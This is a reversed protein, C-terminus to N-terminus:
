CGLERAGGVHVFDCRGKGVPWSQLKMRSSLRRPSDELALYLVLAQVVRIGLFMGGTAIAQALQLALWSKGVKPKGGLITLGVPLLGPVLWVPEPWGKTLLEDATMMSLHVPPKAKVPIAPTFGTNTLGKTMPQIGDAEAMWPPEVPPADGKGNGDDNVTAKRREALRAAAALAAQQREHYKRQAERALQEGFYADGSDTM